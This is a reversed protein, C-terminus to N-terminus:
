TLLIISILFRYIKVSDSPILSLNELTKQAFFNQFTMLTKAFLNEFIKSLQKRLFRMKFNQDTASM